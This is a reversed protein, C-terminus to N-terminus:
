MRRWKKWISELRVELLRYSQRMGLHHLIFTVAICILCTMTVSFTIIDQFESLITFRLIILATLAVMIVASIKISIKWIRIWFLDNMDHTEAWEPTIHDLRWESM